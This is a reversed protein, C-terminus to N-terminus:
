LGEDSAPLTVTFVAGGQPANAATIVGGHQQIIGQSIALGLGTGSKKTTFFPEFLHSMVEPPIGPGTDTITVTLQRHGASAAIDLRGGDPMADVANLIINLFVQALQDPSGVIPPLRDPVRLTVQIRRERLRTEALDLAYRIVDAIMVPSREMRSPRTFDLVRRSINMLRRIERRIAQLYEPKEAEDIPFDTVLELTTWVSHLPNNIEHMLAAALQGMATIRETQILHQELRQREQQARQLAELMGNIAMALRALEDRGEVLVRRSLDGTAGIANVETSLRTLRAIGVRELLFASLTSFAIGIALLSFFYYRTIERGQQYIARPLRVQVVIAPNGHIDELLAYGAILNEELLHVLIPPGFPLASPFFSRIMQVDAPMQEPQDARYISLPYGLLASLREVEASTLYRGVVLTGRIPGRFLSDSIPWASLFLPGEPMLFIGTQGVTTDTHDTIVPDTALSNVAAPLPIERRNELDYMKGYVVRGSTHIFLMLNLRLNEFVDDSLNFRIYAENGDEVFQYTENWPAWDGGVRDLEELIGQIVNVAQRTEEEVERQELQSFNNLLNISFFFYLVAIFLTATLVVVILVKIRISM